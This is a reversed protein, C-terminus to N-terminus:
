LKQYGMQDLLTSYARSFLENEEKSLKEKWGYIQGKRFTSSKGFSDKAIEEFNNSLNKADIFTLIKNIAKKQLSIDGGGSPGVIDEFKILLNNPDQQWKLMSEIMNKVGVLRAEPNNFGDAVAFFRDKDTKLSNFLYDHSHHQPRDKIHRLMSLIMDRPDRIITISHDLVSNHVKEAESSYPVHGIIFKGPYLVKFLQKYTSKTILVPSSVSVPLVKREHIKIREHLLNATRWNIGARQSRRYFPSGLYFTNKYIAHEYGISELLSSLFHTGSHPVTNIFIKKKM